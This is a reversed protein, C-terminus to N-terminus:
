KILFGTFSAGIQPGDYSMYLKQGTYDGTGYLTFQIIKMNWTSPTATPKTVVYTYRGEFTGGPFAWVGKAFHTIVQSGDENFKTIGCLEAYGTGVIIEEPNSHITLTLTGVTSTVGSWIRFKLPDGIDRIITLGSSDSTIGTGSHTVAIEIPYGAAMWANFGGEMNYVRRFGADKLMQAGTPSAMGAICHIIIKDNLHSQGEPSNIWATLVSWDAPPPLVPVNIAGPVHGNKFFSTPRLDIIVLNHHYRGLVM